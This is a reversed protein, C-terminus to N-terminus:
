YIKPESMEDSLKIVQPAVGDLRRVSPPVLEIGAKRGEGFESRAGRPRGVLACFPVEVIPLYM